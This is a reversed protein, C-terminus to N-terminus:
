EIAPSVQSQRLREILLPALHPQAAKWANSDCFPSFEERDLKFVPSSLLRMIILYDAAFYDARNQLNPKLKTNTINLGYRKLVIDILASVALTENTYERLALDQILARSTPVDREARSIMPIALSLYVTDNGIEHLHKLCIDARTQHPELPESFIASVALTYRILENIFQFDKDKREAPVILGANTVFFSVVKETNARLAEPENRQAAGGASCRRIEERCLDALYARTFVPSANRVTELAIEQMIKIVNRAQLVHRLIDNGTQQVGREVRIKLINEIITDAANILTTGPSSCMMSLMYPNRCLDVFYHNDLQALNGLIEPNHLGAAWNRILEEQQERELPLLRVAKPGDLNIRIAAALATMTDPSMERTTVIIHAGVRGNGEGYETKFRDLASLYATRMEDQVIEDFSDALLLLKGCGALARIYKKLECINEEKDGRLTVAVPQEADRTLRQDFNTRNSLGLMARLYLEVLDKTWERLEESQDQYCFSFMYAPVYLMYMDDVAHMRAAIGSIEPSPALYRQGFCRAAMNMYMTKGMGTPSVIVTCTSVDNKIQAAPENCCDETDEAEYRRFRPAVYIDEMSVAEALQQTRPRFNEIDKLWIRALADFIQAHELIPLISREALGVFQKSRNRAGSCHLLLYTMSLVLDGLRDKAKAAAYLVVANETTGTVKTFFETYALIKDEAYHLLCYAYYASAPPVHILKMSKSTGEMRERMSSWSVFSKLDPLTNATDAEFLEAERRYLELIGQFAAPRLGLTEKEGAKDSVMEALTEVKGTYTESKNKCCFDYITHLVEVLKPASTPTHFVQCM